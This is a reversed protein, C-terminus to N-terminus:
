PCITGFESLMVALDGLDVAGDGDLDGDEYVQGSPNGFNSLQIALDGLDVFGDHNSDGLWRSGGVPWTIRFIKSSRLVWPFVTM